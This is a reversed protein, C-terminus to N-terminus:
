KPTGSNTLKGFLRALIGLNKRPKSTQITAKSKELLDFNNAADAFSAVYNIPIQMHEAVQQLTYNQNHWFAAIKMSFPFSEIRTFNPWHKLCYTQKLKLTTAIRGQSTLLNTTWIFYELHNCNDRYSITKKIIQNSEDTSLLNLNIQGPKVTQQCLEAFAKDSPALPSFVIFNNYIVFFQHPEYKIQVVQKTRQALKKAALLSGLFYLNPQYNAVENSTNDEGCIRKWRQQAQQSNKFSPHRINIRHAPESPAERPVKKPAITTESLPPKPTTVVKTAKPTPVKKATPTKQKVIIKEQPTDKEPALPKTQTETTETNHNVITKAAAILSKATIPKEVWIISDETPQKIALSICPKSRTLKNTEWQQRSDPHDLDVIYIDALAQDSTPSFYQHGSNKIFFKFIAQSHPSISELAIKLPLQLNANNM